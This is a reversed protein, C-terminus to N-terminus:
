PWRLHEEDRRALGPAIRDRVDDRVALAAVLVLECRARQRERLRAPDEAPREISCILRGSSSPLRRARRVERDRHRQRRTRHCLGRRSAGGLLSEAAAADGDAALLEDLELLQQATSKRRQATRLL